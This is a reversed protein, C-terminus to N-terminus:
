LQINKLLISLKELFKCPLEIKKLRKIIFLVDKADISFECQIGILEYTLDRSQEDSLGIQKLEKSIYNVKDNLTNM